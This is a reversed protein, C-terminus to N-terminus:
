SMIIHLIAHQLERLSRMNNHALQTLVVVKYCCFLELDGEHM